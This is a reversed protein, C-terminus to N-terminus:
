LVLVVCVSTPWCSCWCLFVKWEALVDGYVILTALTDFLFSSRTFPLGIGASVKADSVLVGHGYFSPLSFGSFMEGTVPALLVVIMVNGFPAFYGLYVAFFVEGESYCFM